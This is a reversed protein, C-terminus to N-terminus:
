DVSRALAAAEDESLQTGRHHERGYRVKGLHERLLNTTDDVLSLEAGARPDDGGARVTDAAGLLAAADVPRRTVAAAIELCSAFLRPDGLRLAIDLAGLLSGRASPSHRLRIEALALNALSTGLVELGLVGLLDEGALRIASRAETAARAFDGNDLLFAATFARVSALGGVDNEERYLEAARAM